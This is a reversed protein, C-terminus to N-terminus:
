VANLFSGDSALLLMWTAAVESVIVSLPLAFESFSRASARRIACDNAPLRLTTSLMLTLPEPALVEDSIFAFGLEFLLEVVFEVGPVAVGFAVGSVVAGFEVGSAVM